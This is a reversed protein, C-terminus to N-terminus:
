PTNTGPRWETILLVVLHDDGPLHDDPALVLIEDVAGIDLDWQQAQDFFFNTYQRSHQDTM